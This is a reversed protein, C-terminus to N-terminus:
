TPAEASRVEKENRQGDRKGEEADQRGHRAIAGVIDLNRLLEEAARVAVPEEVEIEWRARPFLKPDEIVRRRM